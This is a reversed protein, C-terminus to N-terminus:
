YALTVIVTSTESSKNVVVFSDANNVERDIDGDYDAWIIHTGSVSSFGSTITNTYIDDGTWQLFSGKIHLPTAQGVGRNGLTINAVSVTVPPNEPPDIPTSQNACGCNCAHRSGAGRSGPV